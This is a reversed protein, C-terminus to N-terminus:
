NTASGQPRPLARVLEPVVSGGAAAWSVHERSIAEEASAVVDSWESETIVTPALSRIVTLEQAAVSYSHALNAHQRTESWATTAAAAAAFVGLVDFWRETAIIVVGGAIGAFELALTVVTLVQYWRYHDRAKSSYWQQQDDIRGSLYLDRRSELPARRADAMADTIASRDGPAAALYTGRLSSILRQVIAVYLRDADVASLTMPFPQGGVAYRWSLTKVSEALARGDYWAREPRTAVRYFRLTLALLFLLVAVVASIWAADGDTTVGAISALTLAVLSVFTLGLYRNRASEAVRNASRHLPPLEIM